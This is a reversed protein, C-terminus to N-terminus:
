YHLVYHHWFTQGSRIQKHPRPFYGVSSAVYPMQRLFDGGLAIQLGGGWCRGHIVMIVLVPIDRWGTSAYQALNAQWPLWKFLLVLPEKALATVSKIDLGTCFCM